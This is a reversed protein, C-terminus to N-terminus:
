FMTENDGHGNVDGDAELEEFDVSLILDRIQEQATPEYAAEEQGEELEQYQGQM